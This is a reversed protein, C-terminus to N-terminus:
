FVGQATLLQRERPSATLYKQTARKLHQFAEPISDNPFMLCNGPSFGCSTGVELAEPFAGLFVGCVQGQEQLTTLVTKVKEASWGFEDSRNDMGDTFVCLLHQRGEELKLCTEGIARYLATGDGDRPDYTQATLPQLMGIPHLTRRDIETSFCQVAGQSMPDAHRQLWALYTNYASRLALAHPGVGSPSTDLLFGFTVVQAAHQHRYTEQRTADWTSLHKSLSTTM